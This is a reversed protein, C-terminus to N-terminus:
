RDALLDAVFSPPVYFGSHAAVDFPLIIVVVGALMRFFGRRNITTKM